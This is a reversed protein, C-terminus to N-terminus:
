PVLRGILPIGQVANQLQQVITPSAPQPTPSPPPTSPNAASTASDTAAQPINSQAPTVLLGINSSSVSFDQSQSVPQSPVPNTGTADSSESSDGARLLKFEPSSKVEIVDRLPLVHYKVVVRISCRAPLDPINAPIPIPLGTGGTGKARNAVAKSVLYAVQVQDKTWCEIYREAQGEVQRLKKYESKVYITDGAHIDGAPLVLRWSKDDIVDINLNTYVTWALIAGSLAFLLGAILNARRPLKM